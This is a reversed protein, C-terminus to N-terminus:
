DKSHTEVRQSHTYINCREGRLFGVLTIGLEDALDIALSSPAGVAVIMRIGAMAAKQVLEFSIRGSLLLIQNSLDTLNKSNQGNIEDTKANMLWAGILKDLANHRGVDEATAIIEGGLNFLACGHIGGTHEFSAQTNRLADPLRFLVSADVKWQTQPLAIKCKVQVADISAKGCVGCSSTTYFHRELSDLDVIVSDHLKITISSQDASEHTSIIDQASSIIGETFLFGLALEADNGPTRMTIAINKETSPELNAGTLRIELPEEVAVFDNTALANGHELRTIETPSISLKTSM